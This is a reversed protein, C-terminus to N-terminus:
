LVSTGGMPNRAPIWEFALQNDLNGFVNKCTERTRDCGPYVTVALSGAAALLEFVAAGFPRMLTLQNGVHAIVFREIGLAAVRGARFFGDAFGAADPVTLVIGSMATLTAAHAFDAKNLWCGRGYLTNVCTKEMKLRLGSRRMGAWVSVCQLKVRGSDLEGSTVEGQWAVRFEEDPDTAHGRWITVSTVADQADSVYALAFAETVPLGITVQEKSVDGSQTNESHDVAIGTWTEGAQVVDVPQNCYRLELAGQVFHYLWVPQGDEESTDVAEYTM